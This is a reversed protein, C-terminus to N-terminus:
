KGPTLKVHASTADDSLPLSLLQEATMKEPNYGMHRALSKILEISKRFSSLDGSGQLNKMKSIRELEPILKDYFRQGDKGMQEEIGDTLIALDTKSRDPFFFHVVNYQNGLGGFGLPLGEPIKVSKKEGLKKLLQTDYGTPVRIGKEIKFKFIRADVEADLNVFDGSSITHVKGNQIIFLKSGALFCYLHTGKRKNDRVVSTLQAVAYSRGGKEEHIREVGADLLTALRLIHTEPSESPREYHADLLQRCASSTVVIGENDPGLKDQKSRLNVHGEVDVVNIDKRGQAEQVHVIDGPVGSFHGKKPMPVLSFFYGSFNPFMSNAHGIETHLADTVEKAFRDIFNKFYIKKNKTRRLRRLGRKDRRTVPKETRSGQVAKQRGRSKASRGPKSFM